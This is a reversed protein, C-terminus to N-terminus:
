CKSTLLCIMAPPLLVLWLDDIADFDLDRALLALLALTRLLLLLASLPNLPYGMGHPEKIM